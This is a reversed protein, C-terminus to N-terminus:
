CAAGQMRRGGGFGWKVIEKKECEAVKGRRKRWKLVVGPPPLLFVASLQCWVAIYTDKNLM